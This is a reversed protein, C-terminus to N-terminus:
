RQPETISRGCLRARSRHEQSTVCSRSSSFAGRFALRETSKRRGRRSAIRTTRRTSSRTRPSTTELGLRLRAAGRRRLVRWCPGVGVRVSRRPSRGPTPVRSNSDPLNTTVNVPPAGLSEATLNYATVTAGDDASGPLGDAGPDTVAMPVAYAELPRNINILGYPQRRAIVVVGTRVGFNPAVEREIYATAQRVYTNEIDPDLRTSASGGSVSSLRGEEGADWRGNGNADNTWLYTQSWGSPNPNLAATFIPAPYVWFKGYHLKLVTKGDGTLDASM